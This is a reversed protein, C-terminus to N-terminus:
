SFENPYHGIEEERLGYNHSLEGAVYSFENPYSDIRGRYRYNHRDAVRTIEDQLAYHHRSLNIM